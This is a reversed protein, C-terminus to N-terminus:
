LPMASCHLSWPSQWGICCPNQKHAWHILTMSAKTNARTTINYRSINFNLKPIKDLYKVLTENDSASGKIYLSLINGRKLRRCQVRACVNTCVCALVHVCVSLCEIYCLGRNVRVDLKVFVLKFDQQCSAPLSFLFLIHCSSFDAGETGQWEM